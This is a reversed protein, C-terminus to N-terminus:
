KIIYKRGRGRVIAYKWLQLVTISKKKNTYSYTVKNLFM